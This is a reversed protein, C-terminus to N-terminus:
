FPGLIGIGFFSNEIIIKFNLKSPSLPCLPLPSAETREIEVKGIIIYLTITCILAPSTLQTLFIIISEVQFLFISNTPYLEFIILNLRDPSSLLSIM